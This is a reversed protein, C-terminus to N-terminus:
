KSAESCWNRCSVSWSRRLATRALQAPTQISSWHWCTRLLVAQMKLTYFVIMPCARHLRPATWVDMQINNHYLGWAVDPAEEELRQRVKADMIHKSRMIGPMVPRGELVALADQATLARYFGFKFMSLGSYRLCYQVGGQGSGWFQLMPASWLNPPARAEHLKLAM